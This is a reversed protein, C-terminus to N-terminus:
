TGNHPSAQQNCTGPVRKFFVKVMTVGVTALLGIDSAGLREGSTLIIADKEIDLGQWYISKSSSFFWLDNFLVLCHAFCCFIEINYYVYILSLILSCQFSTLNSAM